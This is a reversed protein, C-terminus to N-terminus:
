RPQKAELAALREEMTPKAHEEMIQQKVQEDVRISGNPNARWADRFERDPLESADRDHLRVANKGEETKEWQKIMRAEKGLVPVGISIGGDAREWLIVKPM